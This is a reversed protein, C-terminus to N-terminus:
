LRRAAGADLFNTKGCASPFAAAVYTKEGQPSRRGLILMHEPSGAKDRGLLSAIRLRSANRASCRMAAM